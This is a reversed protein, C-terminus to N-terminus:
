FQIRSTHHSDDDFSSEKQPNNEEGSLPVIQIEQRPTGGASRMLKAHM